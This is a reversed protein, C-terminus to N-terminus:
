GTSPPTIVATGEGFTISCAALKAQGVTIQMTDPMNVTVAWNHEDVVAVEVLTDPKGTSSPTEIFQVGYASGGAKSPSVIQLTYTNTKYIVSVDFDANFTNGGAEVNEIDTM